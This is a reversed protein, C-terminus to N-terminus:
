KGDRDGNRGLHSRCPNIRLERGNMRRTAHPRAAHARSLASHARLAADTRWQGPPRSSREDRREGQMGAPVSKTSAGLRATPAVTARRPSEVPLRIRFLTGQDPRSSVTIAGGHRDIIEKSITLGLGLGKGAPKTTFFQGFVKPLDGAAIGRGTDSVEVLADPGLQLTRIRLVGQGEIAQAANVFLNLFVQILLGPYAMLMPLEGLDKEVRVHYRLEHHAVRLAAELCEHLDTPRPEDHASYALSKLNRTISTVIEIAAAIDQAVTSLERSLDGLDEEQQASEMLTPLSELLWMVNSRLCAIPNSIEHIIGAALKGIEAFKASTFARETLARIIATQREPAPVRM